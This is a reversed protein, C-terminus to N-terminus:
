MELIGYPLLAYAYLVADRWSRVKDYKEEEKSVHLFSDMLRVLLAYVAFM